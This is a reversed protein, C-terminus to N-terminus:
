EFDTIIMEGDPEADGPMFIPKELGVLASQSFLLSGSLQIPSIPPLIHRHPLTATVTNQASEPQIVTAQKSSRRRQLARVPKSLITPDAYLLPEEGFLPIRSMEAHTQPLEKVILQHIMTNFRGELQNGGRKRWYENIERVRRSILTSVHLRM